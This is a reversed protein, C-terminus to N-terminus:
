HLASWEIWRRWFRAKLRPMNLLTDLGESLLANEIAPIHNINRLHNDRSQAELGLLPVLGTGFGILRKPQALEIHRSLVASLGQRALAQTDAMPTHRPLASALYVKEPSIAAANLFSDLLRGQTGSLLTERDEAEPELVLVMLEAEFAGRPAIRGRPGIADLGQASMWFDHFAALTEPAGDAFFDIRSKTRPTNNSGTSGFNEISQPRAPEIDKQEAGSTTPTDAQLWVTADDSFESDVGANRWWDLAAAIDDRWAPLPPQILPPKSANM